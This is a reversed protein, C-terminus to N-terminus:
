NIMIFEDPWIKMIFELVIEQPVRVHCDRDQGMIFFCANVTTRGCGSTETDPAPNQTPMGFRPHACRLAGRGARKPAFSNEFAHFAAHQGVTRHGANNGIVRACRM